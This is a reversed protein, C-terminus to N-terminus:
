ADCEPTGSIILYYNYAELLRNHFIEEIPRDKQIMTYYASLPSDIAALFEDFTLPYLDILNVMGVPYSKPQALLTGLLSGAAIVHYESANEKFYKLANLAASCEQIEDFIILTKAPLIKQESLLGLLEIIRQPNKNTEFISALADEEDFNFYVFNEYHKGGFEKMLWTKGVQRAGKIILPKRDQNDRWEVLRHLAARKLFDGM